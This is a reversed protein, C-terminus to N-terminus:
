GSAPRDRHFDDVGFQGGIGLEAGPEAALDGGGPFHAAQERRQHHVRVHVGRHGPQGGRVHGARRQGLRDPAAPRQGGPGQQRQGRAQGLAQGRDVRRAHHVTVELRGVYQQGRVPRAHDVEPDGLGRLHRRQRPGAEHDARGAEHGGLLGRALLHPREAVHEAQARHEGEGGRSALREAGPLGGRHELAHDAPRSVELVSGGLHPRQDFSAQGLVRAQAGGGGFQQGPHGGGLCRDLRPGLRGPPRVPRGHGRGAAAAAPGRRGSTVADATAPMRAADPAPYPRIAAVWCWRSRHRGQGLCRRSSPRWAPRRRRGLAYAEAGGGRM